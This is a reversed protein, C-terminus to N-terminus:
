KKKERKELEVTMGKVYKCINRGLERATTAFTVNMFIEGKIVNQAFFGKLCIRRMKAAILM